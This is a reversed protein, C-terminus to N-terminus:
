CEPAKCGLERNDMTTELLAQAGSTNPLLREISRKLTYIQVSSVSSLRGPYPDSLAHIVLAALHREPNKRKEFHDYEYERLDAMFTAPNQVLGKAHPTLEAVAQTRQQASIEVVMSSKVWSSIGMFAAVSGALIFIVLFFTRIAKWNTPGQRIGSIDVSTQNRRIGELVLGDAQSIGAAIDKAAQEHGVQSTRTEYDYPDNPNM